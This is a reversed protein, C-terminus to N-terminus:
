IKEKIAYSPKNNSLAILNGVYEGIVGLSATIIGTSFLIAVMLSTYGMPVDDNLKKFILYSGLFISIGFIYFGIVRVLRLPLTSSLSLVRLSLDFLSSYGYASTKKQSTNFEITVFGIKDTYWLAIEDLFFLAGKHQILNNKLAATFVRFSSGKGSNKNEVRLARKYLFTLISRTLGKKSHIPTGYVLDYNGNILFEYLKSIDDPDQELDDDITIIYNGKSAALGCLLANHQGYNKSLRIGNINAKEIRIKKIIEWSNDRSGDDILIFEFSINLKEIVAYIKDVTKQLCSESNFVPIIISFDM